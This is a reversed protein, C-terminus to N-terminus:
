LPRGCLIIDATSRFHSFESAIVLIKQSQFQFYVPCADPHSLRTQANSEFIFVPLMNELALISNEVINFLLKM